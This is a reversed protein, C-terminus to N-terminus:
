KNMEFKGIYKGIIKIETNKTYVQTTFNSDDSMPELIVLDGQKTFKKLTAEFGNVLVAAIEGNKVINQKRILAYAGNRIVKNMSEGNVKLFFCEEPNVIDMLNPDIPLYGELCEEAWNPIGASIKGYIPCMYFRNSTDFSVKKEITDSNIKATNTKSKFLKLLENNDFTSAYAFRLSMNFRKIYDLLDNITAIVIKISQSSCSLLELDNITYFREYVENPNNWDIFTYNLIEIYHKNLLQKLLADYLFLFAIVYCNDDILTDENYYDLLKIPKVTFLKLNNSLDNIYENFIELASAIEYLDGDKSNTYHNCIRELNVFTSYCIGELSEETYGCIQMLEDYTVLDLSNDAIKKLIEPSPPNDYMLRTLKSLYASTVETKEAMQNISGYNNKIKVLIESFKEKDFNM